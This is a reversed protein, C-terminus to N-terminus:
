FQHIISELVGLLEEPKNLYYQKNDITVVKGDLKIFLWETGTTSAGFIYPLEIGDQANYIQVGLMQAICQPVGLEIDNDKAEVICFVPREVEIGQEGKSLVFDCEGNLGLEKNADINGGSYISFNYKFRGQMELLIPYVIAESRSKESFYAGRRELGRKLTELFWDSPTIEKITGFLHEYTVTVDFAKKLNRLSSFQSYPM